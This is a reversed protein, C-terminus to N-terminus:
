IFEGLVRSQQRKPQTVQKETCSDTYRQKNLQGVPAYTQLRCLVSM